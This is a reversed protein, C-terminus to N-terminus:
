PGSVEFKSGRVTITHIGNKVNKQRALLDVGDPYGVQGIEDMTPPGIDALANKIEREVRLCLPCPHQPLRGRGKRGVEHAKGPPVDLNKRGMFAIGRQFMREVKIKGAIGQLADGRRKLPELVQIAVIMVDPHIQRVGPQDALFEGMRLEHDSASGKRREGVLENFFQRLARDADEPLAFVRNQFDYVAPWQILFAVYDALVASDGLTFLM